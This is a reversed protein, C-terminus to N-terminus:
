DRGAEAREERILEAAPRGLAVPERRRLREFVEAAPPRATERGLLRRIFGILRGRM